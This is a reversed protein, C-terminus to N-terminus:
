AFFTSRKFVSKFFALTRKWADKAATPNYVEPRTDNFFAHPTHPYINVEGSKKFTELGEKLRQVEEQQVWGDEEGWFYLIPVALTEIESNPPIRGYFSAACRIEGTRCALRLAQSGGMSFGIVGIRDPDVEPVTKLHHLAAMLDSLTQEPDLANMLKAAEAGNKTVIQGFRFYLDPALVVFREKALRRAVEKIQDNLGWWEHLLILGPLRGPSKPRCLFASLPEGAASKEILSSALDTM